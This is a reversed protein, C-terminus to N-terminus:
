EVKGDLVSVHNDSNVCASVYFGNKDIWDYYKTGTQVQYTQIGESGFAKVLDDYTVTKNDQINKAFEKAKDLSVKKNRFSNKDYRIIQKSHVHGDGTFNVSISATDDIKWVFTQYSSETEEGLKERVRKQSEGLQIANYKEVVATYVAGPATTYVKKKTVNLVLVVILVIVAIVTIILLITSLLQKEKGLENEEM